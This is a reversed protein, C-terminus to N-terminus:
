NRGSLGLICPMGQHNGAYAPARGWSPANARTHVLMTGTWHVTCQAQDVFIYVCKAPQNYMSVHSLIDTRHWLKPPVVSVSMDHWMQSPHNPTRYSTINVHKSSIHVSGFITHFSPQPFSLCSRHTELCVNTAALRGFAANCIHLFARLRAFSKCKPRTPRFLSRQCLYM